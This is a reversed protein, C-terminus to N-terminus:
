FMFADVKRQTKLRDQERPDIGPSTYYGKESSSGDVWDKMTGVNNTQEHFLTEYDRTFDAPPVVNTDFSLVRVNSDTFNGYCWVFHEVYGTNKISNYQLRVANRKGPLVVIPLEDLPVLCGCTTQVEQIFLPAESNNEIEFDIKLQEGQIVPYYHRDPDVFEANALELEKQCASFVMVALAAFLLYASIRLRDKCM